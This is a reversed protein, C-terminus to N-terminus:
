IARDLFHGEVDDGGHPGAGIVSLELEDRLIGIQRTSRPRHDGATGLVGMQTHDIEIHPVNQRSAWENTGNWRTSNCNDTTPTPSQAPFTVLLGTPVVHVALEGVPQLPLKTKPDLTTSVAVGAVPEVKPPHDDFQVGSVAVVHVTIIFM